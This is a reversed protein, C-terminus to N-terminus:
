GEGTVKIAWAVVASAAITAAWALVKWVISPVRKPPVSPRTGSAKIRDTLPRPPPQKRRDAKAPRHKEMAEIFEPHVFFGGEEHPSNDIMVPFSSLSGDGVILAGKNSVKSIPPPAPPPNPCSPISYDGTTHPTITAVYGGGHKLLAPPIGTKAGLQELVADSPPWADRRAQLFQRVEAVTMGDVKDRNMGYANVAMETEWQTLPSVTDLRKISMGEELEWPQSQRTTQDPGAILKGDKEVLLVDLIMKGKQIRARAIGQIPIDYGLLKWGKAAKVKRPWEPSSSNRNM